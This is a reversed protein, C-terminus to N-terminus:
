DGGGDQDEEEPGVEGEAGPKKSYSCETNLNPFNPDPTRIWSLIALVKPLHHDLNQDCDSDICQEHPIGM